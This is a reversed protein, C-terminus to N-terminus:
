ANESWGFVLSIKRLWVHMLPYIIGTILWQIIILNTYFIKKYLIMLIIWKSLLFLFLFILFGGWIFSIPKNLFFNYHSILFERFLIYILANMGLPATSLIDSIIGIVFAYRITFLSPLYLSLFFIMIADFAIIFKTLNFLPLPYFSLFCFLIIVFMRLINNLFSFTRKVGGKNEYKMNNVISLSM